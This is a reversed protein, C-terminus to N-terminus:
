VKILINEVVWYLWIYEIEKLFVMKIIGIIFKYGFILNIEMEICIVFLVM